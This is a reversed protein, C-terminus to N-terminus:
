SLFPNNQITLFPNNNRCLATVFARFATHPMATRHGNGPIVVTVFSKEGFVARSNRDIVVFPGDLRYHYLNVEQFKQSELGVTTFKIKIGNRYGPGELTSECEDGYM